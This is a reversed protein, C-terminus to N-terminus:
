KQIKIDVIINGSTTGSTSVVKFMGSKYGRVFSYIDGSELFKTKRGGSEFAFSNAILISDNAATEFEEITVNLKERSFRTTNKTEWNNVDYIGSYVGTLNAGPSTIINEELKDFDDYYYLLDIIEQNNFAEQMTYVMGSETSFFSGYESSNQAGLQVNLFEDIEGYVILQDKYITLYTSSFNGEIDRIIFEWNDVESLGKSIEIEKDYTESYIGLDLYREDNLMAIFNTLKNYGNYEAHIVVTFTQGVSITTDSSIFGPRVMLKITPDPRDTKEDEDCSVLGIFILSTFLFLMIRYATKKM